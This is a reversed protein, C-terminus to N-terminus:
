ILVVEHGATRAAAISPLNDSKIEARQPGFRRYVERLMETAHGQGRCEPAITYSVEGDDLRVVGVPYGGVMAIYIHPETRALRRELWALHGAWEVPEPTNSMAVTIPDNRWDFLRPADDM